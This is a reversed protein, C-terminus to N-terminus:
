DRPLMQSITRLAFRLGNVYAAAEAGDNGEKHDMEQALFMEGRITKIAEEITM